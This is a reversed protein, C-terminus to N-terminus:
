DVSYFILIAAHFKSVVFPRRWVCGFGTSPPEIKKRKSEDGMGDGNDIVM